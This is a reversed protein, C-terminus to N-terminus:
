MNLSLFVILSVWLLLGVGYSKAVFGLSPTFKKGLVPMLALTLVVWYALESVNILYVPYHVFDPINEMNIYHTLSLPNYEAIEDLTNFNGFSVLVFHIFAYAITTFEAWIAAKWLKAFRVKVDAVLVGVNLVTTVVLLKLSIFVPIFVYSLWGYKRQQELIKEVFDASEYTNYLLEETELLQNLLTNIVYLLLVLLYLQTTPGIKWKMREM